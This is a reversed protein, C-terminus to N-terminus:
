LKDMEESFEKKYETSSYLLNKLKFNLVDMNNKQKINPKKYKKTKHLAFSYKDVYQENEDFKMLNILKNENIKEYFYFKDNAKLILSIEKRFIIKGQIKIIYIYINSNSNYIETYLYNDSKSFSESKYIFNQSYLFNSFCFLLIILKEM